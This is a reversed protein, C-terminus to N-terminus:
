SFFRFSLRSLDYGERRRTTRSTLQGAAFRGKLSKRALLM